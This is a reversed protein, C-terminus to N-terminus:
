PTQISRAWVGDAGQCFTYVGSSSRGARSFITIALQRCPPADKKVTTTAVQAGANGTEKNFWSFPIGAERHNLTQTASANLMDWDSPQFLKAPTERIEWAGDVRCIEFQFPERRRENAIIFRSRRCPMGETEYTFEAKLRGSLSSSPSQWRVVQQDAMTDLSTDVFAVFEAMEEQTFETLLSRKLFFMNVAHADCVCLLVFFFLGSKVM